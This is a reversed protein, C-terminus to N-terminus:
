CEFAHHESEIGDIGEADSMHRRIDERHGIAGECTTLSLMSRLQKM